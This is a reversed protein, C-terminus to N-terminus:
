MSGGCGDIFAHFKTGRQIEFGAKLTIETGSDYDINNGTSNVYQNSEIAGDVEFDATFLQNGTLMNGNSMTYESVPSNITVSAFAQCNNNDTVTLNYTGAALGSTNVPNGTTDEWNYTYPGSGGTAFASLTGNNTSSCNLNSGTAFITIAEAPPIIITEYFVCSNGDTIELSYSGAAVGSLTASTQGNPWLYTFPGNGGSVTVTTSGNTDGVCSPSTTTPNVNLSPELITISDIKECGLDDMITVSYTGSNLNSISPGNSGNSWTYSHPGMGGIASVSIYGDNSNICTEEIVQDISIDLIIPQAIFFSEIVSCTNMDTVTVSNNGASLNSAATTTEGSSWMYTYPMTGGLPTVVAQGDNGGNCSVGFISGVSAELATPETITWNNNTTCNNSDTVTVSYTGAALNSIINTTSGNSWNITYPSTGGTIQIDLEGDSLGSCSVNIHNQNFLSLQQNPGNVIVNIIEQCQNNDTVTVDYSGAALGTIQNFSSGDFWNYTYPTTGGSTVLSIEGDMGGACNVSTVLVSSTLLSPETITYNEIITCNNGDTISLSYQGATLNSIHHQYYYQLNQSRITKLSPATIEM